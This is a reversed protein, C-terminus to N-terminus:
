ARRYVWTFLALAALVVMVHAALLHVTQTIPCHLQLAMLGTAGAVGAMLVDRRPEPGSARRMVWALAAVPLATALGFIFCGAARPLLDDGTGAVSAHHAEHASPLVALLVGGAVLAVVAGVVQGRRAVGLAPRLALATLGAMLVGFVGIELALRAVPYHALDVRGMSLGIAGLILAAVVMVLLRQVPTSRSRLWALPGRDGDIDTSISAFVADLDVGLADRDVARAEDVARCTPCGALHASVEDDRHAGLLARQTDECTM